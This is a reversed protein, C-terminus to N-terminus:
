KTIADQISLFPEFAKKFKKIFAAFTGFGVETSDTGVFYAKEILANKWPGATGREMFSLVFIIKDEETPYANKNIHLYTHCTNLFNTAELRDGMFDPPQHIKREVM